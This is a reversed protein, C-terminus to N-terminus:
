RPVGSNATSNPYRPDINGPMFLVAPRNVPVNGATTAPTASTAPINMATHNQAPTQSVSVPAVNGAVTNGPMVNGSTVNGAVMNGTAGNGSSVTGPLELMTDGAQPLEQAVGLATDLSTPLEQATPMAAVQTNMGAHIGGNMEPNMGQGSNMGQGVSMGSGSNQASASNMGSAPATTAVQPGDLQISAPIESMGNQASNMTSDNVNQAIREAPATRSAEPGPPLGNETAWHPVDGEFRHLQAMEEPNPRLTEDASNRITASPNHGNLRDRALSATAQANAKEAPAVVKEDKATPALKVSPLSWDTTQTKEATRCGVLAFFVFSFVFSVYFPTSNM